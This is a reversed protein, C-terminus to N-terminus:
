YWFIIKSKQPIREKLLFGDFIYKKKRLKKPLLDRWWKHNLPIPLNGAITASALNKILPTSKSRTSRHNHFKKYFCKFEDIITKLKLDSHLFFNSFYTPLRKIKFLKKSKKNCLM